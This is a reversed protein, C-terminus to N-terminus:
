LHSKKPFMSGFSSNAFKVPKNPPLCSTQPNQTLLDLQLVLKYLQKEEKEERVVGGRYCLFGKKSMLYFRPEDESPNQIVTVIDIHLYGVNSTSNAIM